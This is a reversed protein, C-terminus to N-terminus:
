NDTSCFNARRCSYFPPLNAVFAAFFFIPSSSTTNNEKKKLKKITTTYCHKLVVKLTTTSIM